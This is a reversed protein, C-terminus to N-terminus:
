FFVHHVYDLPLTVNVPKVGIFYKQTKWTHFKSDIHRTYIFDNLTVSYIKYGERLVSKLFHSDEGTNKDPFKIKEFIKKNVFLTAGQIFNTYKNYGGVNKLYVKKSEPVYVYMTGRGVVYVKSKLMGELNHLLYNKGYYDDDDMKTWISYDEPICEVSYNLCEGLTKDPIISVKYGTVKNEELYDVISKNDIDMNFIIHLKKNEYNQRKYNNVINPLYKHGRNTVCVIYINM